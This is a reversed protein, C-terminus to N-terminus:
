SYHCIRCCTASRLRNSTPRGSRARKTLLWYWRGTRQHPSLTRTSSTWIATHVGHPDHPGPPFLDILLLHVGQIILAASMEIFSRFQAESVKNGRSVVDIVAVVQGQQHRVTLRDAKSSYIEAEPETKLKRADPAPGRIRRELLAVYDPPLREKNLADALAVTWGLRFAHFLGADVRTWDHVPM